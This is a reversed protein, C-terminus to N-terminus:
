QQNRFAFSNSGGPLTGLDTMVGGSYSFAHYNGGSTYSFGVITGSSNIGEAYSSPGGLTGLDHATIQSRGLRVTSALTAVILFSILTTRKMPTRLNALEGGRDHPHALTTHKHPVIATAAPQLRFDMDASMKM